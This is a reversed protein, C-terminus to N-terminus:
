IYTHIGGGIHLSYPGHTLGHSSLSVSLPPHRQGRGEAMLVHLTGDATVMYSCRDNGTFAAVDSPSVAPLEELGADVIDFLSVSPLDPFM